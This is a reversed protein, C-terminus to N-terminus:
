NLPNEDILDVQGPHTLSGEYICGTRFSTLSFKKRVECRRIPEKSDYALLYFGVGSIALSIFILRSISELSSAITYTFVGELDVPGPETYDERPTRM